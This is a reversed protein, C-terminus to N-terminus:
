AKQVASKFAPIRFSPAVSYGALESLSSLVMLMTCIVAISVASLLLPGLWSGVSWSTWVIMLAAVTAALVTGRTALPRSTFAFAAGAIAALPFLGILAALLSARGRNARDDPQLYLAILPYSDFPILRATDDGDENHCNGCRENIISRIRVHPRSTTCEGPVVFEPTLSSIAARNAVAYNDSEYAAQSAGSRIWDLLAQREGERETLQTSSLSEALEDRSSAPSERILPGMGLPTNAAELRREMSSIPRAPHFLLRDLDWLDPALASPATTQVYIAVLLGTYGIGAAILLAALFRRATRPIQQLTM